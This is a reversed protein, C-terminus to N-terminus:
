LLVDVVMPLVRELIPILNEAAWELPNASMKKATDKGRLAMALAGLAMSQSQVERSLSAFPQGAELEAQKKEAEDALKAYDEGTYKGLIAQVQQLLGKDGILAIWEAPTTPKSAGTNINGLLKVLLDQWDGLMDVLQKAM